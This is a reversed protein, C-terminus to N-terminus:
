TFLFKWHCRRSVFGRIFIYYTYLIV